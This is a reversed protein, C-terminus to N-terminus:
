RPAVALEALRVNDARLDQLDSEAQELADQAARLRGPYARTELAQKAIAVVEAVRATETAFPRIDAWDAVDVIDQLADAYARGEVATEALREQLRGMEAHVSYLLAWTETERETHARVTLKWTILCALGTLAAWGALWPLADIVVIRGDRV